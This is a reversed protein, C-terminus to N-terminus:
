LERIFAFVLQRGKKMKKNMERQVEIYTPFHLHPNSRGYREIFRQDMETLQEETWQDGVMNLGTHEDRIYGDTPHPYLYYIQEPQRQRSMEAWEEQTYERTGNSYTITYSGAAPQVPYTLRYEFGYGREWGEEEPQNTRPESVDYALM